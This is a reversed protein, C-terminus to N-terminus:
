LIFRLSLSGFPAGDSADWSGGYSATPDYGDAWGAEVAVNLVISLTMAASAFYLRRSSSLDGTVSVAGGLGHTASVRVDGGFDDWGFGALWEVAFLDKGVTARFSTVTPDISVSSPDATGGFDIGGVFRRSVSASVGPITFGERFIGVRVGATYATSGDDFGESTPLFLFSARGFVDVSLFGGVTSMLRFGDFLGLAIDAHAATAVFGAEGLGAPDRLDPVSMDVAGFRATLAIRPGGQVRTALTTATGSVESGFGSLLAVHGQLAEGAAASAFCPAAQGGAAVCASGLSEPSQAELGRTAFLTVAIVASSVLAWEGWRRPSRCPYSCGPSSRFRRPSHTM